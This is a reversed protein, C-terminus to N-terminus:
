PIQIVGENYYNEGGATWSIQMNYLGSKLVTLSINRERDTGAPIAITKDLRKDSPRFFFVSGTVRDKAFREPVRLVLSQPTIEWTLPEDLRHTREITNIKEQYDLEQQYYDESVLDVNERMTLVVMTLILAVFGSYLFTIKIGWSM